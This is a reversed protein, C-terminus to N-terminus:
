SIWETYRVKSPGAQRARKKYSCGDKKNHAMACMHCKKQLPSGDSITDLKAIRLNKQEASANIDM